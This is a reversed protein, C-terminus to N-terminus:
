RQTPKWGQGFWNLHQTWCLKRSPLDPSTHTLQANVTAHKITACCGFLRPTRVVGTQIAVQAEGRFRRLEHLLRLSLHSCQATASLSTM